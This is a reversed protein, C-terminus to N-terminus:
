PLDATTIDPLVLSVTTGRGPIGSIKLEGGIGRARERMGTLGQSAPNAIDNLSIGSGCDTVTLTAFGDVVGLDVAARTAIAHKAVNTLAEQCIRFVATKMADTMDVDTLGVSITTPIHSWKGFDECLWELAPILGLHDLIRPRLGTAIRKVSVLAESCLALLDNGAEKKTEDAEGVTTLLSQLGLSLATLTGGLDDHIERALRTQNNEMTQQLHGSFSQLAIRSRELEERTLQDRTRDEYVSVIEGTPLKYVYNDRWGSIRKDKYMRFLFQRPKGTTWVERFIELLGFKEVGPFVETVRRGLVRERAIDDISEAGRNFDVFVFNEGDNVTKYVAVGSSMTNVLQHYRAETAEGNRRAKSETSMDIINIIRGTISGDLDQLAGASIRAAFTSGDKRQLVAEFTGSKSEHVTQMRETLTLGGTQTFILTGPAGHLEGKTYGVMRCLAPNVREILGQMDGILMGCQAFEFAQRLRSDHEPLHKDRDPM